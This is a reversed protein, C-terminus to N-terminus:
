LRYWNLDFISTLIFGHSLTPVFRKPYISLFLGEESFAAAPPSTIKPEPAKLVTGPM